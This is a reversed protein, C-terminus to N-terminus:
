ICLSSQKKNEREQVNRIHQIRNMCLLTCRLASTWNSNDTPMCTMHAVVANTM